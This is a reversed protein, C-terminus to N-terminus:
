KKKKASKSAEKRLKRDNRQLEELEEKLEQAKALDRNLLAILDTRFRCDSPLPNNVYWVSQPKLKKYEWVTQDDIKMCNIWSGEIKSYITIKNKKATKDLDGSREYRLDFDRQNTIIGEFYDNTTKQSFFMRKFWGKKDPNFIIEAHINNEDDSIKMNKTYDYTRTGRMLGYM